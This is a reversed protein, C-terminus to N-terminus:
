GICHVRQACLGTSSLYLDRSLVLWQQGDPTEAGLRRWEHCCWITLFVPGLYTSAYFAELEVPFPTQSRHM